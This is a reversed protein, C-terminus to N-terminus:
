KNLSKERIANQTEMFRRSASKRGHVKTYQLDVCEKFGEDDSAPVPDPDALMYEAFDVEEESAGQMTMKAVVDGRIVRLSPFTKKIEPM